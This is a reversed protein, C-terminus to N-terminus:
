DNDAKEKFLEKALTSGFLTFLLGLEIDGKSATTTKEVVLKRFSDEDIVVTKKEEEPEEPLVEINKLYVKKLSGDELQVIGLERRESISEYIEKLIGVEGTCLLVKDGIKM